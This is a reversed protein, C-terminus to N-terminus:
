LLDYTTFDGIFIASVYTKSSTSLPNGMKLTYPTDWTSADSM